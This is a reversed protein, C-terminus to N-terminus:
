PWRAIDSEGQFLRRLVVADQEALDLHEPGDLLLYGGQRLRGAREVHLFRQFFGQEVRPDFKEKAAGGRVHQAVGPFRGRPDHHGVAGAALRHECSHNNVSGLRPM